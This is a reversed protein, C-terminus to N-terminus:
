DHSPVCPTPRRSDALRRMLSATVAKAWAFGRAWLRVGIAAAKLAEPDPAPLAGCAPCVLGVGIEARANSRRIM